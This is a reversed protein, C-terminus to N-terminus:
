WSVKLFHDETIKTKFGLKELKTALREIASIKYPPFYGDYETEGQKAKVKINHLTIKYMEKDWKINNKIEVKKAIEAMKKAIINKGSSRGGTICNIKTKM